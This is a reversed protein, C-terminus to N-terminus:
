GLSRHDHTSRSPRYMDELWKRIRNRNRAEWNSGAETGTHHFPCLTILNEAVSEAKKSMVLEGQAKTHSMQLYAPGTDTSPWRIIPNGWVDRCWGAKGDITPAVCRYGDRRLVTARVWDPIASKTV